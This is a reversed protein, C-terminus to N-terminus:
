SLLTGEGALPNIATSVRIFREWSKGEGPNSMWRPCVSHLTDCSCICLLGLEGHSGEGGSILFLHPFRSPCANVYSTPSLSLTTGPSTPVASFAPPLAPM